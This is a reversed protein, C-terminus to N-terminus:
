YIVTMAAGAATALFMVFLTWIIVSALAGTGAAKAAVPNEEKWILFLILGLLPIIFGLVGWPFANGQVPPQTNTSQQESPDQELTEGCHPCIRYDSNLKEGCSPCYHMVAM